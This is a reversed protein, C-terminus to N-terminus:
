GLLIDLYQEYKFPVFQKEERKIRGYKDIMIRNGDVMFYYGYGLVDEKIQCRIEYYQTETFITGLLVNDPSYIEM